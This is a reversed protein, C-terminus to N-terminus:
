FRDLEEDVDHFEPSNHTPFSPQYDSYGSTDWLACIEPRWELRNDSPPGFRNLPFEVLATAKDATKDYYYPRHLLGVKAAEEEIKGSERLDAPTPRRAIGGTDQGKRSLQCACLIPLAWKGAYQRLLKVAHSTEKYDSGLLTLHDIVVGVLKRKCRAAEIRGILRDVTMMPDTDLWVNPALERAYDDMDRLSIQELPKRMDAPLVRSVIASADMEGTWWYVDGYRGWHLATQAVVVSKGMKPRAAIIILQGPKSRGVNKDWSHYPWPLGEIHTTDEGREKAEQLAREAKAYEQVLEALPRAQSPETQAMVDAVIGALKSTIDDWSKTQDESLDQIEAAARRVKRRAFSHRISAVNAAFASPVVVEGFHSLLKAFSQEQGASVLWQRVSFVSVVGDRELCGLLAAQTDRAYQTSFEWAKVERIKAAYVQDELAAALTVLELEALDEYGFDRM